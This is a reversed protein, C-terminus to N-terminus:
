RDAIRDDLWLGIVDRQSSLVGSGHARSLAPDITRVSLVAVRLLVPHGGDDDFVAVM